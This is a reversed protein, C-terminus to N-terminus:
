WYGGSRCRRRHGQGRFSGADAGVQLKDDDDHNDIKNGESVQERISHNTAAHTSRDM